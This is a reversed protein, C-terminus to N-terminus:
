WGRDKALLDPDKQLAAALLPRGLSDQGSKMYSLALHYQRSPTPAIQAAKKLHEAALGYVGNHYFARGLTDQASPDEPALEVAQQAFSVAEGPNDQIVMNALSKLARINARDIALAGRYKAIATPRNGANAEADALMLLANVNKPHSALITNLTQRAADLRNESLDIQALELKAPLFEPEAAAAAEFAKRAGAPDGFEELLLGLLNQLQASKPRQAVIGRLVGVAKPKQNQATCSDVLLRVARINDPDQDPYRELIEEADAQAGAFQGERIKLFGDQEVLDPFRGSKLGKDIGERAQKLDGLALLAWNRNILVSIDNKQSSPTQDLLELAGKPQNTNILNWALAVRASLYHPRLDLAQTLEQRAGAILGEKHKIEAVDFHAEPSNPRFSLVQQLDQEVGTTDGARLRLEAREILADADKPNHKLADALLAEAQPIRNMKVYVAVVRSRAERDDPAARALRQFEALAEDQRREHLLFLGYIPQYGKDNVLSLRKFAEEAESLRNTNMQITALSLLAPASQHNLKLARRIEAEALSYKHLQIYLRGLALAADSSQPAHEAASKLVKEAGSPDNKSVRVRALAVASKLDAPFREV